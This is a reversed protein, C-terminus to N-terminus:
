WPCKERKPPPSRSREREKGGGGSKSGAGSSGAELVELTVDLDEDGYQKRWGKAPPVEANSEAYFCEGDTADYVWWTPEGDGGKTFAISPRAGESSSRPGLFKPKGNETGSEVYRGFVEYDMSLEESGKLVLARGSDGHYDGDFDEDRDYDDEDGDDPLPKDM